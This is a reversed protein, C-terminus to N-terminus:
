RFHTQISLPLTAMSSCASADPTGPYRSSDHDVMPSPGVALDGLAGESGLLLEPGTKSIPL